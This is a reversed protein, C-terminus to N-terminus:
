YAHFRDYLALISLQEQGIRTAVTQVVTAESPIQIHSEGFSAILNINQANSIHLNPVQTVRTVGSEDM